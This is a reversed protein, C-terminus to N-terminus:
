YLSIIINIGRSILIILMFGANSVAVNFVSRAASIATAYASADYCGSGVHFSFLFCSKLGLHVFHDSVLDNLDFQSLSYMLMSM